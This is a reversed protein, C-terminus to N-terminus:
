GTTRDGSAAAPGPITGAGASGASRTRAGTKAGGGSADPFVFPFPDSLSPPPPFVSSHSGLGWVRFWWVRNVLRLLLLVLSRVFSVSQPSSEGKHEVADAAAAGSKSASGVGPGPPPPHTRSPTPQPHGARPTRPAPTSSAKQRLRM